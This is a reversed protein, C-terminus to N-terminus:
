IEDNQEAARRRARAAGQSPAMEEALTDRPIEPLEHPRAYTRRTGARSLVAAGLGSTAAIWTLIWASAILLDHAWGLLPYAM